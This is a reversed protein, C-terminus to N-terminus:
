FHRHFDADNLQLCGFTGCCYACVAFGPTKQVEVSVDYLTDLADLLPRTVADTASKQPEDMEDVALFFLEVPSQVCLDLNNLEFMGVLSGWLREHLLVSPV